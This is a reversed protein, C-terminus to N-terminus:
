IKKMESDQEYVDSFRYRKLNIIEDRDDADAYNKSFVSNTIRLQKM